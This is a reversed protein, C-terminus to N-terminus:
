LNGRVGLALAVGYESRRWQRAYAPTQSGYRLVTQPVNFVNNANAVLSFRRSLQVTLNLDLTTRAKFYEFGDPGFLPQAVRKDQGRHNWKAVWTVRERGFSFGWNASRPIFSSFSAQQDGQLKLQTANAFVTLYRGWGGLHRLSHRLNIEAGQIRADGSNFKTALNWGVYQADLGVQELDALTALRVDDGFFDRIEKLFVGGSIMGGKESYYELSLDLNDATWPRLGTNRVTITGKAVTPDASTEAGLDLENITASPIIDTFDPRGYTRAYAARALFNERIDYTLHLSPYLGDYSRNARYAREKRVLRMEELSGVAGAESRRIRAGQATRAFSGNANRVFVANPDFLMGEGEDVTQERRVGTLIRLRNHLLRAEAQLYYASVSEEIRESNTIRFTEAAVVQAPTQSFLVPNAQFATWTGTPSIWPVNRFGYHSDENVYVRMQYPAANEVTAPNGDPGNFTWNINGRRADLTQIRHAGGIQLAAPFPFWRLSRRLNLNGSRVSARNEVPTDNATTIRYNALEYVDVERNTAGFTRIEAPRVADFGTLSVRVPDILNGTVLGFHGGALNRRFIESASDSLGGEIKWTGDDYRYQLSTALGEGGTTQGGGSTTVSGRGTAGVVFNDGSSFPVGTAPTPTGITGPSFTWTLAGIWNRYRNWQSSLSLVSKPTVRWDAKLSLNSRMQSRPSDILAYSQLYPRAFSAGTATGAGSFTMTSHHQENFKNSQAGAVMLGFRQNVPLAYDFNYSPLTKRTLHDGNSHPTKRLTLNEDSSTLTLGYRFEARSREFASKSILNVSGALSDAANAPTPVKTVEVRSIDNMAMTNINFDRGGGAVGGVFFAGVVPAGNSTFSTMGSGLGRISIGIIETGSYEGTVGPLLKLFEGVNSGLVDGLSDTAVVNKLNPAFRQENAAIAAANTEKDAAVIYPKARVVNPDAGYRSVSTLAVDQTVTQGAIVNVNIRQADLDTFFIDLAVSGAPLNALQFEGTADSFAVVDSGPVTVRANNLYQGTAANKVRGSVTGSQAAPTAVSADAALAPVTPVNALAM